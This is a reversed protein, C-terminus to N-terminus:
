GSGVQRDVHVLRLREHFLNSTEQREHNGRDVAIM